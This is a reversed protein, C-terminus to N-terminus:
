TWRGGPASSSMSAWCPCLVQGPDSRSGSPSNLSKLVRERAHDLGPSPQPNARPCGFGLCIAQSLFLGSAPQHATCPYQFHGQSTPLPSVLSPFCGRSCVLGLWPCLGTHQTHHKPAPPPSQSMWVACSSAHSALDQSGLLFHPELVWRYM